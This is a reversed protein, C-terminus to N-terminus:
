RSQTFSSFTTCTNGKSDDKLSPTTTVAAEEAFRRLSQGLQGSDEPVSGSLRMNPLWPMRYAPIISVLDSIQRSIQVPVIGPVDPVLVVGVLYTGTACRGARWAAVLRQAALLGSAHTRAAVLARPPHGDGVEPWCLGRDSAGLLRAITTTGAGGHAGLVSVPIPQGPERFDERAVPATAWHRGEQRRPGM